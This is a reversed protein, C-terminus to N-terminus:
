TSEYIELGFGALIFILGTIVLLVTPSKQVFFVTNPNSGLGAIIFSGYTTVYYMIMETFVFDGPLFFFIGQRYVCRGWYIDPVQCCDDGRRIKYDM